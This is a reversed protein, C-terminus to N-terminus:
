TLGRKVVHAEGARPDHGRNAIGVHLRQIDGAADSVLHSGDHQRVPNHHSKQGALTQTDSLFHIGGVEAAHRRDPAKPRHDTELPQPHAAEQAPQGPRENVEGEEGSEGVAEGGHELGAGSDRHRAGRPDRRLGGREREVHIGSRPRAGVPRGRHLRQDLLEVVPVRHSHRAQALDHDVHAQALGNLVRLQQIRGRHLKALNRPLLGDDRPCLFGDRIELKALVHGDAGHDRQAALAHVLEEVPQRTDGQRANAIKTPEGRPREVPAAVVRHPQAVM